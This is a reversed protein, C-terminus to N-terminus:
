GGGLHDGREIADAITRAVHDDGGIPGTTAGGDGSRLWAIIRSRQTATDKTDSSDLAKLAERVKTQAEHLPWNGSSGSWGTIQELERDALTLAEKVTALLSESDLVLALAVYEPGVDGAIVRVMAGVAMRAEAEAVQKVRLAQALERCRDGVNPHWPITHGDYTEGARAAGDAWSGDQLTFDHCNGRANPTTTAYGGVATLLSVITSRTREWCEASEKGAADWAFVLARLSPHMM